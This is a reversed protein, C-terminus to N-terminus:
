DSLWRELGTKNKLIINIKNKAICTVTYAGHSHLREWLGSSPTSDRPVLIIPLQTGWITSLLLGGDDALTPLARVWQVLERAMYKPRLSAGFSM